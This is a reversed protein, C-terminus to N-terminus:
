RFARALSEAVAHTDRDSHKKLGCEPCSWTYGLWSKTEVVGLGCKPCRPPEEVYVDRRQSKTGSELEHRPRSTVQWRVGNFMMEERRVAGAPAPMEQSKPERRTPSSGTPPTGQGPTRTPTKNRRRRLIRVFWSIFFYFIVLQVIAPVARNAM